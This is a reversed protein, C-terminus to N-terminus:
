PNLMFIVLKLEVTGSFSLFAIMATIGRKLLKSIVEASQSLAIRQAVGAGHEGEGRLEGQQVAVVAGEQASRACM